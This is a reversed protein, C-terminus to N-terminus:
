EATSGRYDGPTNGTWRKFARYFASSDSFGLMLAVEALPIATDSVYDLALRQRLDNYLGQFTAGEEALKRQLSKESLGLKNAIFARGADQNSMYRRLLNVVKDKVGNDSELEILRKRAHSEHVECLEEDAELLPLALTEHSILVGDFEADFVPEVGFIRRYEDICAPKERALSVDIPSLVEGTVWRSFSLVAALVADIQHYYFPISGPRPHYVLWVGRSTPLRQFVGGDSILRQYQNLKDFAESLNASNMLTYGVIHFTAPRVKEGLHLGFCPDGTEEICAGWLKVTEDMTFRQLNNFVDLTLDASDLLRHRDCGAQEAFLVLSKVWNASVTIENELM